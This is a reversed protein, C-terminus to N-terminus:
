PSSSLTLIINITCGHLNQLSINVPKALQNSSPLSLARFTGNHFHLIKEKSLVSSAARHQTESLREYSRLGELSRRGTREQILKEPVGQQFM